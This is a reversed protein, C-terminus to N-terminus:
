RMSTRGFHFSPRCDFSSWAWAAALFAVTVGGLEGVIFADSPPGFPTEVTESACM